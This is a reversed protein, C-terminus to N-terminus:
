TRQKKRTSGHQMTQIACMEDESTRTVNDIGQIFRDANHARTLECDDIAPLKTPHMATFYAEIKAIDASSTKRKRELSRIYADPVGAKHENQQLYLAINYLEDETQQQQAYPSILDDDTPAAEAQELTNTACIDAIRTYLDQL